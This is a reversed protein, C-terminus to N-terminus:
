HGNIQCSQGRLQLFNYFYIFIFFCVNLYFKDRTWKYFTVSSQWLSIKIKISTNWHTVHFPGRIGFTEKCDVWSLLEVATPYYWCPFIDIWQAFLNSHAEYPKTRESSNELWNYCKLPIIGYKINHICSHRWITKLVRATKLGTIDIIDGSDKWILKKKLLSLFWTTNFHHVFDYYVCSISEM